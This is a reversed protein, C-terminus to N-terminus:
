PCPRLRQRLPLAQFFLPSCSALAITCHTLLEGQIHSVQNQDGADWVIGLSYTRLLSISSSLSLYLSPSLSHSLFLSLSLSISLLSLTLFDM